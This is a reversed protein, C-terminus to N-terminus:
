YCVCLLFNEGHRRSRHLHVHRGCVGLDVIIVIVIVVIVIVIVVIVVSIVLVVYLCSTTRVMDVLAIYIFM